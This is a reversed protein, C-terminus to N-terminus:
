RRYVPYGDVNQMTEDTFDKPFHKTCRGNDMCPCKPNHLGRPGHVMYKQVAEFLRPHEQQDPLYAQVISDYDDVTRLKDADQLILLMHAHPLGRKQWEVVDILAVAKGFWGHQLLDERAQKLKAAFVRTVLDPRDNAAQGTLLEEQIQKWNPNATMTLFLTPKSTARVIAM